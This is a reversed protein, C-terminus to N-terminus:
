ILRPNKKRIEQLLLEAEGHPILISGHRDEPLAFSVACDGGPIESLVVRFVKSVDLYSLGVNFFREGDAKLRMIAEPTDKLPLLIDVPGGGPADVYLTVEANKGKVAPLNQVAAFVRSWDVAVSSFAVLDM